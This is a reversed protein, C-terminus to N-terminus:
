PLIRNFHGQSLLLDPHFDGPLVPCPARKIFMSKIFVSRSQERLARFTAFRGAICPM